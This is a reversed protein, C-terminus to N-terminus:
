LFFFFNSFKVYTLFLFMSISIVDVICFLTTWHVLEMIVFNMNWEGLQQVVYRGLFGTAGYVAAVIGSGFM